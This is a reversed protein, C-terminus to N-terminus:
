VEWDLDFDVNAEEKDEEQYDELEKKEKDNIKKSKNSETIYM